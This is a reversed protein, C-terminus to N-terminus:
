SKGEVKVMSEVVETLNTGYSQLCQECSIVLLRLSKELERDKNPKSLKDLMLSEVKNLGSIGELLLNVGNKGENGASVLETLKEYISM